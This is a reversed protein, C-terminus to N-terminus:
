LFAAIEEAHDLGQAVQLPGAPSPLRWFEPTPLAAGGMITHFLIKDAAAQYWHRDNCAVHM